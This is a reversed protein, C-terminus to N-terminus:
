IEMQIMHTFEKSGYQTATHVRNNSDYTYQTDETFTDERGDYGYFRTRSTVNGLFDYM